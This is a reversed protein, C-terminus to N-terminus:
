YAGIVEKGSLISETRSTGLRDCGENIFELAQQLTKIGASAKIKVKSSVSDKILKVDEITAGGSAFGTSTKVYDAGAVEALKCANIKQKTNLLATEIIVKLIGNHSHTISSIRNIESQVYSFDDDKLKGINIVMDIETAGNKIAEEAEAYKAEMTTGGHPFGVVTCVAVSTGELEKVTLPVFSPKVCVSAIKYKKAIICADIVEKDGDQPNLVAHDIKSAVLQKQEEITM